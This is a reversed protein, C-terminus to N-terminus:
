GLATLAEDIAAPTTRTLVSTGDPTRIECVAAHECRDLCPRVAIDFGARGDAIRQDLRLAAQDICDLAGWRQCTGACFVLAVAHKAALPVEAALAAAAYYHSVPKGREAALEVLSAHDLPQGAQEHAEDLDLGLRALSAPPLDEHTPARTPTPM